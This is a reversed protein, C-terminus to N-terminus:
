SLSPCAAPTRMRATYSCVQTEQVSILAPTASCEFDIEVERSKHAPACFDGHNMILKTYDTRHQGNEWLSTAWEGGQGLKFKRGSKLDRQTVRDFLCVEFEFDVDNLKLCGDEAAALFVGDPGGDRDKFRSSQLHLARSVYGQRVKSGEMAQSASKAAAAALEDCRDPCQTDSGWEDQGACCDCLGDNVTSLHVFPGEGKEWNCSFEKLSSSPLGACAATGPEDSGDECDCYDDNVVAFTEFSKSHDFCEFRGEASLQAYHQQFEAAAGRTQKSPFPPLAAVPAPAVPVATVLAAPLAAPTQPATEVGARDAATLRHNAGRLATPRNSNIQPVAAYLSLVVIWALVVFSSGGILVLRAFRRNM